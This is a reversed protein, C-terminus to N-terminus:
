GCWVSPTLLLSAECSGGGSGEMGRGQASSLGFWSVVLYNLNSPIWPPRWDLKRSWGHRALKSPATDWRSKPVDWSPPGLAELALRGM